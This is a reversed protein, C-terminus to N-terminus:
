LEYKRYFPSVTNPSDKPIRSAVQTHQKLKNVSCSKPSLILMLSLECRCLLDIVQDSSRASGITSVHKHSIPITHSVQLNGPLFILKYKRWTKSFHWAREVMYSKEKKIFARLLYHISWWCIDLYWAEQFARWMAQGVLSYNHIFFFLVYSEHKWSLKFVCRSDCIIQMLQLDFKVKVVEVKM